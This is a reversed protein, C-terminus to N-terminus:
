ANADGNFLKVVGKTFLYYTCIISIILLLTAIFAILEAQSQASNTTASIIISLHGLASIILLVIAIIRDRNKVKLIGTGAQYYLAALVFSMLIEFIGSSWYLGIICIAAWLYMWYAILKLRKQM